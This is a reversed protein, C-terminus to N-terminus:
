AFIEKCIYVYKRYLVMQYHKYLKVNLKIRNVSEIENGLLQILPEYLQPCPAYLHHSQRVILMVKPLRQECNSIFCFLIETTDNINITALKNDIVHNSKAWGYILVRLPNSDQDKNM